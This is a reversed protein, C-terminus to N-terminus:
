TGLGAAEMVDRGLKWEAMVRCGGPAYWHLELRDARCHAPLVGALLDRTSAVTVEPAHHDLTVHPSVGYLGEYPPCQPFADWLAHTLAAFPSAPDPAVHICGNPFEEVEALVYDVPACSAAVAAVRALDAATPAAVFPSLATIHAHTFAPDSSVWSPEYHEWRSRVFPELEPVPVVLV